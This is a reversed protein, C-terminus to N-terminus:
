VMVVISVRARYKLSKTTTSTTTVKPEIPQAATVQVNQGNAQRSSSKGAHPRKKKSSALSTFSQRDRSRSAHTFFSISSLPKQSATLAIGVSGFSVKCLISAVR